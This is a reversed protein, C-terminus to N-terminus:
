MQYKLRSLNIQKKMKLDEIKQFRMLDSATEIHSFYGNFYNALYITDAADLLTRFRKRTDIEDFDVKIYNPNIPM